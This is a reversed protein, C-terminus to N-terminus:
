QEDGESMADALGIRELMTEGCAFVQAGPVGHCGPHSDTCMISRYAQTLATAAGSFVGHTVWLHLRGAAEPIVSALGMFTGGGDCIDDVVLLEGAAPLPECSFGNLRGSRFDRHKRAQFVPVDLRRAVSGARQAAGEDPAIVGALDARLARPLFRDVLEDAGVAELRHLLGPMVPSHPDLAVVTEFRGTNLLEAYVRAELRPARDARAGPLYPVLLHPRGGDSHVASSWLLATVLDDSDCGRLLAVCDGTLSGPESQVVHPEGAPFRIVEVSAPPPLPRTLFEIV